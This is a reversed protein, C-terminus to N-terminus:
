KTVEVAVAYLCFVTIVAWFTILAFDGARSKIFQM